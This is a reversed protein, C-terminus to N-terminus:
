STGKRPVAKKAPPSKRPPEAPAPRISRVIYDIESQQVSSEASHWISFEIHRDESNFLHVTVLDSRAPDNIQFGRGNPHAFAFIGTSDPPLFARKSTALLTERWFNERSGFLSPPLPVYQLSKEMAEFRTSPEFGLVRQMAQEQSSDMAEEMFVPEKVHGPQRFSVVRRGPYIFNVADGSELEMTYPGPPDWPLDFRVGCCTLTTPKAKLVPTPPLPVPVTSLQPSERIMESLWYYSSAYPLVFVAIIILAVLILLVALAIGGRQNTRASTLHCRM